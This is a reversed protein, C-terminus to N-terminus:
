SVSYMMLQPPVGKIATIAKKAVERPQVKPKEPQSRALFVAPPAAPINEVDASEAPKSAPLFVEKLPPLEELDSFSVPKKAGPADGAMMPDVAFTPEVGTEPTVAASLQAAKEQSDKEQSELAEVSAKVCLRSFQARPYLQSMKLPFIRARLGKPRLPRVPRQRSPPPRSASRWNM